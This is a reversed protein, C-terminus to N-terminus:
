PGVPTSYVAAFKVTSDSVRTDHIVAGLVPVPQRTLTDTAPCVLTGPAATEKEGGLTRESVGDLPGVSAVDFGPAVIIPPRACPVSTTASKGSNSREPMEIETRQPPRVSGIVGIRGTADGPTDSVSATAATVFASEDTFMSKGSGASATPEPCGTVTTTARRPTTTDCDDGEAADTKVNASGTMERTASAAPDLTPADRQGSDAVAGAGQGAEQAEADTKRTVTVPVLKPGSPLTTVSPMARTSVTESGTLPTLAVAVAVPGPVAIVSGDNGASASTHRREHVSVEMVYRVVTACANTDMENSDEAHVAAPLAAVPPASTYVATDCCATHSYVDVAKVSAMRYM